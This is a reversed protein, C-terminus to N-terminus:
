RNRIVNIVGIILGLILGNVVTCLSFTLFDPDFLMSWPLGLFVLTMYAPFAIAEALAMAAFTVVIFAFSISLGIAWGRRFPASAPPFVSRDFKFFQKLVTKESM